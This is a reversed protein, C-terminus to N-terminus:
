PRVACPLLAADKMGHIIKKDAPCFTALAGVLQVEEGHVLYYPCLRLRGEMPVVQGDEQYVPHTLRCPKRYTQLIHLTEPALDTANELADLWEERSHDSGLVVSRAGWATEHFGSVKLILNREKQSAEALEEWRRIPKGNVLPADLVANPPLEVPDVVWSQPILQQLRKFDARPLSERWYPELVHHHFLALNLKEEQYAKMPPTCAVEGAEVAAFIAQATRINGTDFLEWFRYIIDIPEPSGEVPISLGQGLPMVQDPHRVHVRHGLERLHRALYDYEPRYTAAEDSVVICILPDPEPSQAAIARYWTTFIGQPGGLVTPFEHSYLQNLFATLGLGGPVSDLETLAFGDDCLLLDPRILIPTHGRLAKLRGHEVIRLPKGRDLYDHVWPAVLERNRLLNKGEVSRRYLQEIGQYFAHCARGVAELEAVQESTLWWPEPSLRWTKNEFLPQGGLAARLRQLPLGASKPASAAQGDLQPETATPSLSAANM